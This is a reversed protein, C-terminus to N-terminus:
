VPTVLTPTSAKEAARGSQLTIKTLLVAGTLLVGPFSRGFDHWQNDRRVGPYFHKRRRLGRALDGQGFCFKDDAAPPAQFSGLVPPHDFLQCFYQPGRGGAAPRNRVFM